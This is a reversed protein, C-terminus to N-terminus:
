NLSKNNGTTYYEFLTILKSALIDFHYTELLMQKEAAGFPAAMAIFKILALPEIKELFNFDVEYKSSKVFNIYKQILSHKTQENIQDKNLSKNPVFERAEVTKFLNKIKKENLVEFYKEGLINILYRGDSTEEYSIIKGICGINYLDGNEKSQIMGFKKNTSLAFDVMDLYRQEFINLPLNTEPFLITGNLPFIPLNFNDPM